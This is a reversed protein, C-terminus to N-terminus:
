LRRGTFYRTLLDKRVFFFILLAALFGTLHAANNVGGVNQAAGPQLFPLLSAISERAVFFLLLLFGPLRITWRWVPAEKVWKVGVLKLVAVVPVRLIIGIGWFSTVMAGPFLVLYAGMVGAIAGSAGISPIDTHATNFVESGVGAVMGAILYFALFRWSGCADEVRRGFTYLYIMNGILHWMDGHMFMSTFASFAGIGLGDRMFIGRYGFTWTQEIYANLRATGEVPDVFLMQSGQYLNPAQLAMFIMSNAIILLITMVPITRYRVNGSDSLPTPTVFSQIFLTLILYLLFDLLMLM